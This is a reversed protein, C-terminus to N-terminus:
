VCRSTYLLCDKFHNFAIVFLYVRYVMQQIANDPSKDQIEIYEFYEVSDYTIHEFLGGNILPHENKPADVRQIFVHLTQMAQKRRPLRFTEESGDPFAQTVVDEDIIFSAVPDCAIVSFGHEMGHYEASELMVTYPFKDRLKLYVCVPTFTDGILKRSQTSIKFTTDNTTM